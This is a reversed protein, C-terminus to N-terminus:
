INLYSIIDFDQLPEYKAYLPHRPNGLSTLGGIQKWQPYFPSITDVIDRLCDKLYNRIGINNGFALLVLSNNTNAFVNKFTKLNEQHIQLDCNIHLGKPNTSRQPYINLMAFGDCGYAEAFGMVRKITPDTYQENATSPNIGIVYLMREGKKELLYRVSDTDGKM